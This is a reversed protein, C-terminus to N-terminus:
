VLEKVSKKSYKRTNKTNMNQLCFTPFLNGAQGQRNKM